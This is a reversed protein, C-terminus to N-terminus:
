DLDLLDLYNHGEEAIFEKRGNLNDGLLLEFCDKTTVADEAQVQVLRRTEPNMTTLWMMEPENEGLGKSRQLKCNSSGLVKLFDAKEKEDYAFYTVTEKKAKNTYTLEYLPSEAIYVKGLKLLSPVLRYLMALVLTRIQFGDVDADTCIVIKNWRLLDPDFEGVGKLQKHKLEVGCGLVRILDMIIDNQFIKTLQAKLCNLIKGRLPIVAQFEADRGLKVSGLASDGEVIYLERKTADKSRCDIFKKIRNTIDVKGQLKSKVTIRQREASERARKNILVQELVKDAVTKQEIFWLELRSKLLDTMFDQIFKNNIAKKTQNEYSTSTSFSSTVLLLSDAIDNFTIKGENNKYKDQEKCAKDFAYTFAQRCAKEPSGGYELYSSNHYFEMRPSKNNFAFAVEVKVDYEPRDQKDRGRGEDQFSFVDTLGDDVNIETLYGVIGKDYCYQETQGTKEDIYTFTIGANVVAQQKLVLQLYEDSINIDTFVETDPLWRQFTGTTKGKYPTKKLGGINEGHEFHLEYVYGDRKVKVDFYSSAYQTACAGLGNLGLSYSYDQGAANNYKGGAYLEMYVLEYNYRKERENYDLPIGRGFDEVSFSGDLYRKVIIEHGFGERAEDISNSLIEFFAHECGHLDDSGFIVAPRLRVRDAGKLASISANDYQRKTM